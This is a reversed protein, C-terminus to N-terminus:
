IEWGQEKFEELVRGSKRYPERIKQMEKEDLGADDSLYSSIAKWFKKTVESDLEPRPGVEPGFSDRVFKFLRCVTDIDKPRGALAEDLLTEESAERSVKLLRMIEIGIKDAKSTEM